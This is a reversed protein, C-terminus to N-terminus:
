LNLKIPAAYGTMELYGQGVETASSVALLRVAGEWYFGGTSARADIEQNDFLPEIQWQANACRILQSVPYTAKSMSSQWRRLPTFRAADQASAAHIVTASADRLVVYSWVVADSQKDRLQFAMLSGGDVLNIGIWDWGVAREDLLSTSWEHDLWAKGTVPLQDKGLGVTGSVVMQPRSYYYSAQEPKPGKRSYGQNGQLLPARRPEFRCDIGISQESPLYISKARASYSDDPNRKLQWQRMRVDTDSTSAAYSQLASRAAQQDHFLTKSKAHALALHAFQLQQPAFRSTTKSSYGTASRFFTIQMGLPTSDPLSLWATIYWWETRFDPHSGHDQPFQLSYQPDVTAFQGVINSNAQACESTGLAALAASSHAIRELFYRRSHM